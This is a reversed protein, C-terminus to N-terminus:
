KAAQLLNEIEPPAPAGPSVSTGAGPAAAPRGEGPLHLDIDGVREGLKALFEPNGMYQQLAAMGGSQM